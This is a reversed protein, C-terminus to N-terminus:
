LGRGKERMAALLEILAGQMVGLSAERLFQRFEEPPSSPDFLRLPQGFTVLVGKAVAEEREPWDGKRNAM